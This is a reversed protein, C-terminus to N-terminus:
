LGPRSSSLPGPNWTHKNPRGFGTEAPESHVTAGQFTSQLLADKAVMAMERNETHVYGRFLQRQYNMLLSPLQTATVSDGTRTESCFVTLRTCNSSSNLTSIGWWQKNLMDLM